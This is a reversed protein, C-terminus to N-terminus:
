REDDDPDSNVYARTSPPGKTQINIIKNIKKPLIFSFLLIIVVIIIILIIIIIFIINIIM